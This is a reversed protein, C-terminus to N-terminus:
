DGARLAPPDDQMLMIYACVRTVAAVADRLPEAFSPPLHGTFLIVVAGLAAYLNGIAYTLTGLLVVPIARLPRLAVARRDYEPRPPPVELRLPYSDDPDGHLLPAVDHTLLLYSFHRAAMRVATVNFEYIQPPYRGTVLVILWGFIAGAWAFGLFFVLYISSPIAYLPRLLVSLRQRGTLQVALTQTFPRAVDAPVRHTLDTM